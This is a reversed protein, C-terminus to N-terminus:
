RRVTNSVYQSTIPSRNSRDAVASPLLSPSRSAGIRTSSRSARRSDRQQTRDFVYYDVDLQDGLQVVSHDNLQNFQAISSTSSCALGAGLEPHEHLWDDVDIGLLEARRTGEALVTQDRSYLFAYHLWERPKGASPRESFLRWGFGDDDFPLLFTADQATDARRGVRATDILDSRSQATAGTVANPNVLASTGIVLVMPIVALATTGALSPIPGRRQSGGIEILALVLIIGIAIM